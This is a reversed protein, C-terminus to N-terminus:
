REVAKMCWRNSESSPDSPQTTASENAQALLGEEVRDEVAKVALLGYPGKLEDFSDSNDIQRWSQLRGNADYTLLLGVGRDYYDTVTFCLLYTIIGQKLHIVYMARSRDRSAFRPRGLIAEVKARTVRGAVIPKRSQEDGILPRFDKTSGTLHMSTPTPVYLCGVLLWLSLAILSMPLLIATLRRKSHAPIPATM